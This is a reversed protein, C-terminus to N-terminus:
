RPYSGALCFSAFDPFYLPCSGVFRTLFRIIILVNCNNLVNLPPRTRRAGEEQRVGSIRSHLAETASGRRLRASRDKWGKLPRWESRLERLL